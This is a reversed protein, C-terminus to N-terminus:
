RSVLGVGPGVFHEFLWSLRASRYLRATARSQKRGAQPPVAQADEPDHVQYYATVLEVTEEAQLPDSANAEETPAAFGTMAPARVPDAEDYFFHDSLRV